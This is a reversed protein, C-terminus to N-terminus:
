SPESKKIKEYGMEAIAKVSVAYESPTMGAIKKFQRTFYHISTYGLRDAIQTFNLKGTRIHEKAAAIRLHSCYEMVGMGTHARFINQLRRQSIMFITCIQDIKLHIDLMSEMYGCVDNFIDTDNKAHLFCGSMKQPPRMMGKNHEGPIKERTLDGDMIVETDSGPIQSKSMRISGHKRILDILFYELNLRILQRGGFPVSEEDRTEMKTIYPDDLASSFVNRAESIMNALLVKGFDDVCFVKDQLFFIAPSECSFSIVILNPASRGNASVTHFEDPKHFAIEDKQLTLIREGMCIQVEGKDVFIFEWFHHKEGEFSFTSTYEFYHVTYIDKIIISDHLEVPIYQM